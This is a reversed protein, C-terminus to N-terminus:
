KEKDGGGFFRDILSLLIAETTQAGLALLAGVILVSDRVMDQSQEKLVIYVGVVKTGNTLIYTTLRATRGSLHTPSGQTPM